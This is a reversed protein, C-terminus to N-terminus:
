GAVCAREPWSCSRRSAHRLLVCRCMSRVRTHWARMGRLSAGSTWTCDTAFDLHRVVSLLPVVERVAIRQGSRQAEEM